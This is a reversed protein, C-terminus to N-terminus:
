TSSSPTADFLAILGDFGRIANGIRNREREGAEAAATGQARLSAAAHAAESITEERRTQLAAIQQDIDALRTAKDSQNADLRRTIEASIASEDSAISGQYAALAACKTKGDAVVSAIDWSDDAADMAAVAAKKTATDLQNLGEILKALKEITFAVSPVGAEAYIASFEVGETLILDKDGSIPAASGSPQSSAAGASLSGNLLADIGAAPASAAGPTDDAIFLRRLSFGGESPM